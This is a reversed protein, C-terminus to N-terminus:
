HQRVRSKLLLELLKEKLSSEIRSIILNYPLKNDGYRVIGKTSDWEKTSVSIGIPLRFSKGKGASVLAVVPSTGDKKISRTDLKISISAM